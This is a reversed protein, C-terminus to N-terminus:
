RHSHPQTRDEQRITPEHPPRQVDRHGQREGRQESTGPLRFHTPTSLWRRLLDGPDNSVPEASVERYTSITDM